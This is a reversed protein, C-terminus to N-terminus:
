KPHFFFPHLPFVSMDRCSEIKGLDFSIFLESALLGPISQTFQPIHKRIFSKLLIPKTESCWNSISFTMSFCHREGFKVGVLVYIEVALLEWICLNMCCWHCHFFWLGQEWFVKYLSSSRVDQSTRLVRLRPFINMVTCFSHSTNYLPGLVSFPDKFKLYVSAQEQPVLFTGLIKKSHKTLPADWSVCPGYLTTRHCLNAM